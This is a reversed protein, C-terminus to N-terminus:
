RPKPKSDGAPGPDPSSGSERFSSILDSEVRFFPTPPPAQKLARLSKTAWCRRIKWGWASAGTDQLVGALELRLLREGPEMICLISKTGAVYIKGSPDSGKTWAPAGRMARATGLDMVLQARNVLFRKGPPVTLEFSVVPLGDQARHSLVRLVPEADRPREPAALRTAVSVTLDPKILASVLYVGNTDFFAQQGSDIHQTGTDFTVRLGTSGKPHVTIRKERGPELIGVRETFGSGSLVINTLLLSSRNTVTM